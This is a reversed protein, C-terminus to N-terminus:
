TARRRRWLVVGVLLISAVSVGAVSSGRQLPAIEMACGPNVPPYDYGYGTSGLDPVQCGMISYYASALGGDPAVATEGGGGMVACVAADGCTSDNVCASGLGDDPQCVACDHVGADGVVTVGDSALDWCGAAICTGGACPKGVDTLPCEPVTGQLTSGADPGTDPAGGDTAEADTSAADTMGADGAGADTSGADDGRATRAFGLLLTLVVVPFWSRTM